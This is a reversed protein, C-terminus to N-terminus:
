DHMRTRDASRSPPNRIAQTLIGARFRDLCAYEIDLIWYQIDLIWLPYQSPGLTVRGTCADGHVRRLHQDTADRHQHADRSETIAM